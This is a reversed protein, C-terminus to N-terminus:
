SNSKLGLLSSLEVEIKKVEESMEKLASELNQVEEGLVCSDELNKVLQNYTKTIRNHRNYCVNFKKYFEESPECAAYEILHIYELKIFGSLEGHKFVKHSNTNGKKFLITHFRCAYIVLGDFQENIIEIRKGTDLDYYTALLNEHSPDCVLVKGHHRVNLFDNMDDTVTVNGYYTKDINEFNIKRTIGNLTMRRVAVTFPDIQDHFTINVMEGDFSVDFKQVTDLFSKDNHDVTIKESESKSINCIYTDM